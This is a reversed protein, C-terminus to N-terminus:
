CQKLHCKQPRQRHFQISIIHKKNWYGVTSLRRGESGLSGGFVAAWVNVLFDGVANVHKRSIIGSHEDELVCDLHVQDDPM